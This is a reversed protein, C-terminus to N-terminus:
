RRQGETVVARDQVRDAIRGAGLSGLKLIRVAEFVVPGCQVQMAADRWPDAVARRVLPDGRGTLPSGIGFTDAHAINRVHCGPAAETHRITRGVGVAALGEVVGVLLARSQHEVMVVGPADGAEVDVCALCRAIQDGIRGFLLQDGVPSKGASWIGSTM